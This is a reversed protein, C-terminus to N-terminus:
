TPHMLYKNFENALTNTPNKSDTENNINKM